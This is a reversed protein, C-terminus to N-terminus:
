FNILHVDLNDILTSMLQIPILFSILDAMHYKSKIRYSM